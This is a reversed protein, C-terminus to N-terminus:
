ASSKAQDTESELVLFGFCQRCSVSVPVLVSGRLQPDTNSGWGWHQLEKALIETRVWTM